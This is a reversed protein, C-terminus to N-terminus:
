LIKIQTAFNKPDQFVYASCTKVNPVNPDNYVSNPAMEMIQSIYGETCTCTLAYVFLTDTLFLGILAKYVSVKQLRRQAVGVFSSM